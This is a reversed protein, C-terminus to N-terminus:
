TLDSNQIRLRINRNAVAIFGLVGGLAGGPVACGASPAGAAAGAATGQCSFGKTASELRLLHHLKDLDQLVM